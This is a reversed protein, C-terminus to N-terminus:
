LTNKMLGFAKRIFTHHRIVTSFPKVLGSFVSHYGLDFAQTLTLYGHLGSPDAYELKLSIRTM